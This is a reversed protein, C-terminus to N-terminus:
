LLCGIQLFFRGIDWSGEFLKDLRNLPYVLFIRGLKCFFFAAYRGRLNNVDGTLDTFRAGSKGGVVPPTGATPVQASPGNGASQM